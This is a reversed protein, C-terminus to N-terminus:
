LDLAPRTKSGQFVRKNLMEWDTNCIQRDCVVAQHFDSNAAVLGGHLLFGSDLYTSVVDVFGSQHVQVPTSVAQVRSGTSVQRIQLSQLGLPLDPSAATKSVPTGPNPSSFTSGSQCASQGSQSIVVYSKKRQVPAVSCELM